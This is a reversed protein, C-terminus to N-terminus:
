GTREDASYFIDTRLVYKTGSLIPLSEHKQEHIFLLATGQKPLITADDFKTEGGTFDDNLYILFSLRSERGRDKVRGDIHRKFKQAPGYRYVRFNEYLASATHGETLVPLAHGLNSFLKEALVPDEFSQRDNDRLGKMMKRGGPLSVRAAQFGTTECDDILEKCYRPSLFGKITWIKETQQATEM